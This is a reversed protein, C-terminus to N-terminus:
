FALNQINPPKDRGLLASLPTHATGYFRTRARRSILLFIRLFRAAADCSHQVAALLLIIM